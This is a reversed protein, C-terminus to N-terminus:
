DCLGRRLFMMELTMGPGFACGIVNRRSSPRKRVEDMVSIVTTSSSNGHERYIKYSADLHGKTLGLARQIAILIAAGGPHLAWDFDIPEPVPLDRGIAPISDILSEFAPRVCGATLM